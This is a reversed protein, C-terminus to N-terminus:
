KLGAAQYLRKLESGQLVRWEGVGLGKLKIPGIAVRELRRVKHGLRALVRRIERNQGELLRISLRTRDGRTTDRSFGVIKIQAMKARQMTTKGGRAKQDLFVGQELKQLEKETMHGQATVHYQKAVEYRPHTLHNALEGNDTLLILGTSDADLRGVPFLRHRALMHPPLFDLVHRRGHPDQTTSIVRKPKHLIVHIHQRRVLPKAHASKTARRRPTHVLVPNGDLEIRDQEPDVFVPLTNVRNGNVTIRGELIFAECMRRSAVGAVALVKQLRPGRAKDTLESPLHRTNQASSRAHRDPARGRALAGRSSIRAKSRVKAM